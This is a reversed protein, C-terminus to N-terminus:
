SAGGDDEEGEVFRALRASDHLTIRGRNAEVGLAALKRLTRSLTPPTIALRAAILHQEVPLTFSGADRGGSMQLLIAAVRREISWSKLHEIQEVLKQMQRFTAAVISLGLGPNGAVLARLAATEFRALRLPSAADASVPYRAGETILAEAFSEGPGIIKIVTRTGDSTDRSLAAWGDLVVFFADAPDGQFFLTQGEPLTECRPRGVILRFEEDGLSAFVSARRIRAWDSPGPTM